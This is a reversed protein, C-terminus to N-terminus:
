GQLGDNISINASTQVLPITAPSHTNLTNLRLSPFQKFHFDVVDRTLKPCASYVKSPLNYPDYDCIAWCSINDKNFSQFFIGTINGHTKSTNLFNSWKHYIIVINSPSPVFLPTGCIYFISAM